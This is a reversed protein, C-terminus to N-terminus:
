GRIYVLVTWAKGSKNKRDKGVKSHYASEIGTCRCNRKDDNM